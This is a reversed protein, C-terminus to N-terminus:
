AGDCEGSRSREDVDLPPLRSLYHHAARVILHNVSTDRSEAAEQLQRHLETPLRVATTIRPRHRKMRAM